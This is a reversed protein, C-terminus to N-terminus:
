KVVKVPKKPPEEEFTDPQVTPMEKPQVASKEKKQIPEPKREESDAKLKEQNIM